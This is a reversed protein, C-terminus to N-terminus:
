PLPISGNVITGASDRARVHWAASGPTTVLWTTFESNGIDANVPASTADRWIMQEAHYQITATRPLSHGSRSFSADMFFSPNRFSSIGSNVDIDAFDYAFPAGGGAEFFCDMFFAASNDSDAFDPEAYTYFDTGGGPNSSTEFDMEGRDPSTHTGADILFDLEEGGGGIATYDIPFQRYHAFNFVTVGVTTDGADNLAPLTDGASLPLIADPLASIEILGDLTGGGGAPLILAGSPPAFLVGVRDGEAPDTVTAIATPVTQGDITVDAYGTGVGAVTGFRLSLAGKESAPRDGHTRLANGVAPAIEAALRDLAEAVRADIIGPADKALIM